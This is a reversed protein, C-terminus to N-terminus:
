ESGLVVEVYVLEVESGEEDGKAEEVLRWAGRGRKDGVENEGELAGDGVCGAREEDM